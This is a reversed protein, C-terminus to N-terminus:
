PLTQVAFSAPAEGACHRRWIEEFAQEIHRTMRATDFLPWATRHMALKSNLAARLEPDHAIRLALDEYEDLSRTVLEPLGVANLLSAAVRGAFTTGLCTLVPLGAWLADSATTHANYPLTDLFLHALRHRALHNEVPVPPAFVLREAAIGRSVAERRLNERAIPDGDLLWLVSGATKALLRMWVDFLPPTIKSTRNFACYVFAAEPLDVESRAPADPLIPRKADTVQYTDPLYVVKETYHKQEEDPIVIRDALIYDMYSAGMTGPFGLYSVQIPAARRALIEPRAGTTFGGLDVLVEIDLGRILKVVDDDALHTVDEFREFAAKVRDRMKSHDDPGYSIATIDFRERDHQEFLGATLNATAHNRFDASLYAVRLRSAQTRTRPIAAGREPAAKTVFTKACILQQAPSSSAHFFTLPDIAVGSEVADDLAAQEREFSQWDARKRRAAVLKILAFPFAKDLAITRELARISEDDRGLETLVESLLFHNQPDSPALEVARQYDELAEDLRGLQQFASGRNAFAGSSPAIAIARDLEAIAGKLEKRALLIAGRNLHADAFNPALAIVKALWALADDPKNLARLVNAYNFLVDPNGPDVRAAKKLLPEADALHGRQAHLLGLMHLAVAHTRSGKLITTYAREAESLNGSRHAAIAQDLIASPHISSPASAGKNRGQQSM